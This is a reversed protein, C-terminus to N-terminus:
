RGKVQNAAAILLSDTAGNSTFINNAGLASLHLKTRKSVVIWQRSNLWQPEFFNYAADIIESSTAIICQINDAEFHETYYAERLVVREYLDFESVTFGKETLAESILKRGGKGKLIAVNAHKLKLQGICAIIGESNSPEAQLVRTNAISLKKATSAGVAIFIPHKQQRLDQKHKATSESLSAVYMDAAVTSTVIVLDPQIDALQSLLVAANPNAVTDILGCGLVSLDAEKFCAVSNALKAKPRLILYM